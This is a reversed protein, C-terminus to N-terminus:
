PCCFSTRLVSFWLDSRLKGWDLLAWKFLSTKKRYWPLSTEQLAVNPCPSVPRQTSVFSQFFLSFFPYPATSPSINESFSLSSSSYCRSLSVHSYSLLPYYPSSCSIQFSSFKLSHLQTLVRHLPFSIHIASHLSVKTLKTTQSM